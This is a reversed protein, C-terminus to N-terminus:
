SHTQSNVEKTFEDFMKLYGYWEESVFSSLSDSEQTCLLSYVFSQLVWASIPFSYSMCDCNLSVRWAKPFFITFRSRLLLPDASM